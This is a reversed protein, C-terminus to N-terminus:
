FRKTLKCFNQSNLLGEGVINPFIGLYDRLNKELADRLTPAEEGDEIGYRGGKVLRGRLSNQSSDLFQEM